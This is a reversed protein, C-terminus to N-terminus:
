LIRKFWRDFDERDFTKLVPRGHPCKAWFRVQQAKKMLAISQQPDLNDGARIATHCAKESFIDYFFHYILEELSFNEYEFDTLQQIKSIITQPKPQLIEPYGNLFIQNDSIEWLFGLHNLHTRHHNLLENLFSSFNIEIPKLFLQTKLPTKTNKELFEEFLIREHLAHQDVVLLKSQSEFLLYCQNFQGLFRFGKEELALPQFPNERQDKKPNAVAHHTSNIAKQSFLSHNKPQHFSHNESTASQLGTKQFSPSAPQFTQSKFSNLDSFPSINKSRPTQQVWERPLNIQAKEHNSQYLWEQLTRLFYERVLDLDRLRVELKMPHANVDIWQHPLQLFLVYDPKQDKMLLGQYAEKVFQSIMKSKILRNNMFILKKQSRNSCKETKRFFGKLKLQHHTLDLWDYFDSSGPYLSAFREHVSQNKKLSLSKKGNHWVEFSVQPFRLSYAILVEHILTWERASSSLFKARVPQDKFLSQIIIQTGETLNSPRIENKAENCVEYSEEENKFRSAIKIKSVASIAFLAEGRFGFTGNAEIDQIKQIKSTTHQDFILDLDEPHIGTGNDVIKILDRGGNWVELRIETAQADFSNELLEKVINVPKEVIEGAKLQSIVNPDLKSIRELSKM